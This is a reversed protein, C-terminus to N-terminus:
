GIWYPREQAHNHVVCFGERSAEDRLANWVRMLIFSEWSDAPVKDVAKSAAKFAATYSKSDM